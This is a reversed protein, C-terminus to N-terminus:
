HLRALLAIHARITHACDLSTFSSYSYHPQPSPTRISRHLRRRAREESSSPGIRPLTSLSKGMAAFLLRIEYDMANAPRTGSEAELTLNTTTLLPRRHVSTM